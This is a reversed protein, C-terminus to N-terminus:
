KLIVRSTFRAIYVNIEDLKKKEELEKNLREKYDPADKEKELEKIREGVEQMAIQLKKEKLILISKIAAKKLADKETQTYIEYKEEWNRSLEYPVSILEIALFRVEEDPHVLFYGQFDEHSEELLRAFEDFIKRHETMEWEVDDTLETIFVEALPYYHIDEGEEPPEFLPSPLQERGYNLMMRIAEREQAEGKDDKLQPQQRIVEPEVEPLYAPKEGKEGSKRYRERLIKNMETYLAQEQVDVLASCTKIFLSRAITDKVLSISEIIDRIAAAKKVPDNGAEEVLISAKFQIFDKEADHLFQRLTETDVKRSYSDPDEGDPFLIVKVNMGEELIMDIGRFSAKIGAPDGDYLITVNPTFRRIMKVQDATLSTGSSAVVNEIGAQHLSVVDTYGEVLYCRDQKRIEKQSQFLGYLTKSKIYIESEPSNIYKATNKGSGLVRGGFGLVRGTMSHIPFMVRGRFVDVPKEGKSTLGLEKLHELKYGADQAKKTFTEWEDPAYGLKFKRIVDDTFGRERFYSLGIAQGKESEWLNEVFFNEAFGNIAFLTSRRDNTEAQEPTSETEEVPIKYKQALYRLADPYSLAEHDMIFRVSDGAKACGFCKYIGKAPSVIFSPTREDHFPCLGKLNAGNRKLNVFDGVVEEIRATDRIRDITEQTIVPYLYSIPLFRSFLLNYETFFNATIM